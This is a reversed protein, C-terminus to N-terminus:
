LRDMLRVWEVGAILALPVRRSTSSSSRTLVTGPNADAAGPRSVEVTGPAGSSAGHGSSSSGAPIAEAALTGGAKEGTERM